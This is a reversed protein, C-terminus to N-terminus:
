DAEDVDGTNRGRRHIGGAIEDLEIQERRRLEYQHREWARQRLLELAHEAQHAQLLAERRSTVLREQEDQQPRLAQLQDRQRRRYFQQLRFWDARLLQSPGRQSASRSASFADQPASQTTTRQATSGRAPADELISQPLETLLERELHRQHAQLQGQTQLAKGLDRQRLRLQRARVDLVKQLRFRFPM